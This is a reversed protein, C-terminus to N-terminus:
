RLARFLFYVGGAAVFGGLIRTLRGVWVMESLLGVGIGVLHILGTAVVFGFAYNAPDVTGPLEAGHAYGHCIAFVSILPLVVWEAPKWGAAIGGGLVLISIAIGTEVGPLPVGAVGLIGGVVMILPFIVPMTWVARGGIQAGWLGIAFMALFHDLGTLPHEFGRIFGGSGGAIVHAHALAPSILLVVTSLATPAILRKSLQCPM